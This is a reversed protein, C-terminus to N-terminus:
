KAGVDRLTFGFWFGVHQKSGILELRVVCGDKRVPSTGSKIPVNSNTSM